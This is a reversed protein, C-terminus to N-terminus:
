AIIRHGGANPHYNDIFLKQEFGPLQFFTARLDLVPVEFEQGVRFTAQTYEFLDPHRQEISKKRPLLLLLVEAGQRRAIAVFEALVTAYQQHSM